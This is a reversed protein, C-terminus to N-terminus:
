WKLAAEGAGEMSASLRVELEANQRGMGLCLFWVFIYLLFGCLIYIHM